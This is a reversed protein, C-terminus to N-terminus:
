SASSRKSRTTRSFRMSAESGNRTCRTSAKSHTPCRPEIRDLGIAPVFIKVITEADMRYVTASAGQGIVECGDLSIERPKRLIKTLKTFGTIDFVNYVDPGANVIPVSGAQNFLAALVRLGSSSIYELDSADLVVNADPNTAIADMLEDQVTQANEVGLHGELYLTLTNGELKSKM